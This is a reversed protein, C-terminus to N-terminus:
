INKQLILKGSKHRDYFMGQMIFDESHLGTAVDHTKKSGRRAEASSLAHIMCLIHQSIEEGVWKMM